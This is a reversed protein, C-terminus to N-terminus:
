KNSNYLHQLIREKSEREKRKIDNSNKYNIISEELQQYDLQTSICLRRFIGIKSKIFGKMQLEKLLKDSWYRNIYKSYIAKLAKNKCAEQLAEKNKAGIMRMIIADKTTIAFENRGILSKIAVYALFLEINEPNDRYSFLLELGISPFPQKGHLLEHKMLFSNVQKYNEHTGCKSGISINLYNPVIHFQYHEICDENHEKKLIDALKELDEPEFENNNFGKYDEDIEISNQALFQEIKGNVNSQYYDYLVQRAVDKLTYKTNKACRVIGYSIAMEIAEKPKIAIEQLYCLPFQVYKQVNTKDNM